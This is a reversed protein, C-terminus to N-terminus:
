YESNKGKMQRIMIRECAVMYTSWDEEDDDHMTVIKAIDATIAEFFLPIKRRPFTPMAIRAYYSVNPVLVDTEFRFYGHAIANLYVKHELPLHLPKDSSVLQTLTDVKRHLEVLLTLLVQDSEEADKRIKSSKLWAGVPDDNLSLLAYYEKLFSATEQSGQEFEIELSADVFRINEM